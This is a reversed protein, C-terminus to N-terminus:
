TPQTNQSSLWWIVLSALAIFVMPIVAIQVAQWGLINLLGGASLSAFAVMAFVLFDNIGQVRSQHQPSSSSTLLSTSGIFGFNWGVGLLILSSYFHILSTDLYAIIGASILLLFGCTIITGHGFRAILSGTFFSPAFMALVHWRVVDASHNPDFGHHHMALPTATMVLSMIAYSLMGCIVATRVATPRFLIAMPTKNATATPAATIPIRLMLLLPIFIINLLAISFYAGAYDIGAFLDHFRSGLEPGIIASGLGGAMVLSIARPQFEVSAVDAAAFRFYGQCAQYIGSFFAGILLLLFSDIFLAVCGLAGGISGCLAGAIFLPRRGYKAMLNSIPITCLMSAIMMISVPLTAWFKNDALTAGALGGFIILIPMQAGLFSQGLALLAVNRKAEAHSVSTM